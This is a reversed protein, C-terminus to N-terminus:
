FEISYINLIETVTILINIHIIIATSYRQFFFVFKEFLIQINMMQAANDFEKSIYMKTQNSTEFTVPVNTCDM